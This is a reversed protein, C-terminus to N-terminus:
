RRAGTWRVIMKARWEHELSLDISPTARHEMVVQELTGIVGCDLWGEFGDLHFVIASADGDMTRATVDNGPDTVAWIEPMKLLTERLTRPMSTVARGTSSRTFVRVTDRGLLRLGELPSARPHEHAAVAHLWRLVDAFPYGLFPQYVRHRPPQRLAAWTREVVEAPLRAVLDAFYMGKTTRHVPVSAIRAEIDMDGVLPRDPTIRIYRTDPV